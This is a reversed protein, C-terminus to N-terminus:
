RSSRTSLSWTWSSWREADPNPPTVSEVTLCVLTVQGNDVIQSLNKSLQFQEDHMDVRVDCHSVRTRHLHCMKKTERLNEADVDRSLSTSVMYM